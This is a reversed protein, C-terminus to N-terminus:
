FHYKIKNMNSFDRYHRKPCFTQIFCEVDDQSYIISNTKRRYFGACLTNFLLPLIEFDTIINNRTSNKVIVMEMLCITQKTSISSISQGNKEIIKKQKIEFM